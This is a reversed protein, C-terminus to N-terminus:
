SRQRSHGLSSEFDCAGIIEGHPNGQLACRFVLNSLQHSCEILRQLAHFFQKIGLLSEDCIHAM